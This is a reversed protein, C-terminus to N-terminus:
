FQEYKSNPQDKLIITVQFHFTVNLDHAWGTSDFLRDCLRKQLVRIFAGIFRPEKDQPPSKGWLM